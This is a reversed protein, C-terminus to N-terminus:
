KKVSRGPQIRKDLKSDSDGDSTELAETEKAEEDLQNDYDDSSIVNVGPKNLGSRSDRSLSATVPSEQEDDEDHAVSEKKKGKKVANSKNIAPVSPKGNGTAKPKTKLM